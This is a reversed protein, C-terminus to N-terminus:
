PNRGVPNTKSTGHCWCQDWQKRGGVDKLVPCAPDNIGSCRFDGIPKLIPAELGNRISKIRPPTWEIDKNVTKCYRKM